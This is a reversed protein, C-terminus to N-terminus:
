PAQEEKEEQHPDATNGDGSEQEKPVCEVTVANSDGVTGVTSQHFKDGVIVMTGGGPAPEQSVEQNSGSVQPTSTDAPLTTEIPEGTVPDLQIAMGPSQTAPQGTPQADPATPQADVEPTSSTLVAHDDPQNLWIAAGVIVVLVFLGFYMSSKM